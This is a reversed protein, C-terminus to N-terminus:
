FEDDDDDTDQWNDINYNAVSKQVISDIQSFFEEGKVKNASNIKYYKFPIFELHVLLTLHVHKVDTDYEYLCKNQFRESDMVKKLEIFRCYNKIDINNTRFLINNDTDKCIVETYPKQNIFMINIDNVTHVGDNLKMTGNELLQMLDKM